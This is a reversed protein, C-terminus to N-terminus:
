RGHLDIGVEMMRTRPDVFYDNRYTSPGDGLQSPVLVDISQGLLEEREYGFLKETQYNVLVIQGRDNVIVMADPASELLARFKEEARKRDTIDRIASCILTGPGSTL